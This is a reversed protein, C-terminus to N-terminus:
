NNYQKDTSYLLETIESTKYELEISALEIDDSVLDRFETFKYTQQYDQFNQYGELEKGNLM